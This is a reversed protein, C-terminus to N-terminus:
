VKVSASYLEAVGRLAGVPIIAYAISLQALEESKDKQMIQLKICKPYVNTFTEGVERTCFTNKRQSKNHQLVCM